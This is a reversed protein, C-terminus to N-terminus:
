PLAMWAALVPVAAFCAALAILAADHTSISILLAKLRSAFPTSDCTDTIKPTAQWRGKKIPTTM